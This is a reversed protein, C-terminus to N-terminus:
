WYHLFLMTIPQNKRGDQVLNPVSEYKECLYRKDIMIDLSGTFINSIAGYRNTNPRLIRQSLGRFLLPSRV